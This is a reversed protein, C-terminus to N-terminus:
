NQGMDPVPVPNFSNVTSSEEDETLDYSTVNLAYKGEATLIPATAWRTGIGERWYSYNIRKGEIDARANADEENDYILYIM